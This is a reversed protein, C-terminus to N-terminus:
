GVPMQRNTMKRGIVAREERGGSFIKAGMDILVQLNGTDDLTPDNWSCLFSLDNADAADKIQNRVRDMEAPYPPDHADSNGFSM